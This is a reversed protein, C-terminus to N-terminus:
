PRHRWVRGDWRRGGGPGAPTLPRGLRVTWAGDPTTYPQPDPPIKKGSARAPPPASPAPEDWEGLEDLPSPSSASSAAPPSTKKRAKKRPADAERGARNVTARFREWHTRAAESMASAAQTAGSHRKKRKQRGAPKAPEAETELETAGDSVNDELLPDFPVAGGHSPDTTSWRLPEETLAPTKDRAGERASDLFTPNRSVNRRQRERAELQPSWDPHGADAPERASAESAREWADWAYKQTVIPDTITEMLAIVVAYLGKIMAEEPAETADSDPLAEGKLVLRWRQGALPTLTHGQGRLLPVGMRAREPMFGLALAGTLRSIHTL